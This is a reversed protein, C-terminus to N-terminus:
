LISNIKGNNNTKYWKIDGYYAFKTQQLLKISISISVLESLKLVIGCYVLIYM